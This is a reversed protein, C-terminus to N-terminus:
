GSLTLFRCGTRGASEVRLRLCSGVNLGLLAWSHDIDMGIAFNPVTTASCLFHCFIRTLPLRARSLAPCAQVIISIWKSSFFLTIDRIFAGCSSPYGFVLFFFPPRLGSVPLWM